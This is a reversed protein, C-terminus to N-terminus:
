VKTIQLYSYKTGGVINKDAASDHTTYIEVYDGVELKLTDSANVTTYNGAYANNMIIDMETGGNKFIRLQYSKGSEPSQYLVTCNILYFGASTATFKYNAVDFQSGEDFTESDFAIVVMTNKAISQNGSLYARCGNFTSTTLGIVSSTPIRPSDTGSHVHYPVTAVGYQSQRGAQDIQAQEQQKIQDQTPQQDM